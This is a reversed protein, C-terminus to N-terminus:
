ARPSSLSTAYSFSRACSPSAQVVLNQERLRLSLSELAQRPLSLRLDVRFDARQRAVRSGDPCGLESSVVRQVTQADAVIADDILDVIRAADHDDQYNGM